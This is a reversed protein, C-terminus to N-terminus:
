AETDPKADATAKLVVLSRDSLNYGDGSVAAGEHLDAKATDFAVTWAKGRADEPIKFEVPEHHSNLLILFHDDTTRANQADRIEAADGFLLMGITRMWGGENWDQDSMKAGDSRFWLISEGQSSAHPDAEVYSHRHFNPHARRFHILRSTFELLAKRPEDLDWDHWSIETDQCYGNNNGGQTRAMEDGACLMPVGQSLMLTSLFNRKQKERLEIIGQDDTPGEAGCNWSENDSAGDNNDDGNAENHKGEFSVLDHLTFGDHATIFNISASPRRSGHEYLDASGSLRMAIEGHMGTDGKWFKRVSDRYKGNWETWNVPFQGVQYGGMGLDWPEAILKTLALTPDQYIATFFASLQDVDYLSRALASALDFRFGDV